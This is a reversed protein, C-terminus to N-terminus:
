LGPSYAFCIPADPPYSPAPFTSPCVEAQSIKQRTQVDINHLLKDQDSPSLDLVTYRCLAPVHPSIFHLLVM